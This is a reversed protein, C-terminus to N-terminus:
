IFKRVVSNIFESFLDITSCGRMESLNADGHRRIKRFQNATNQETTALLSCMMFNLICLMSYWYVTSQSLFTNYM